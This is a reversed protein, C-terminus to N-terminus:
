ENLNRRDYKHVQKALRALEKIMFESDQARPQDTQIQRFQKQIANLQELIQQNHQRLKSLKEEGSSVETQHDNEAEFRLVIVIESLNDFASKLAELAASRYRQYTLEQSNLKEDLTEILGRFAELLADLQDLDEDAVASDLRFRLHHYDHWCSKPLWESEIPTPTKAELADLVEDRRWRWELQSLPFLRLGSRELVEYRRVRLAAGQRGSYGILDIAIFEDNRAALVDLSVGALPYDVYTEFGRQGLAQCLALRGLNVDVSEQQEIQHNLEQIHKLYDALLSKVPLESASVSSFVLQQMRSRTIAVNFLDARNLYQHVGGPEDKSVACSLLIVDSEDGQFGYPSDVRMQHRRIQTLSFKDTLLQELYNVQDRFFSIVGFSTAAADPLHAEENILRSLYEILTQAEVTNIGKSRKGDCEILRLCRVTTSRPREALIKLRGQYFRQNSFSILETQSRFHEDLSTLAMQSTINQEAIDLLSQDRYSINLGLNLQEAILREQARSLFSIHRLQKHDGVVVVRKGRYAAPISEALHCQTAEDIAVLDFMGPSMPLVQHLKNLPVLWIPLAKLVIDIDISSFLDAQLGSSHTNLAERFSVITKRHTSLLQSLKTRYIQGIRHSLQRDSQHSAKILADYDELLLPRNMTARKHRWTHFRQLWRPGTRKRLQSSANISTQMRLSLDIRRQKLVRNLKSLSQKSDPEQSAVSRMLRNIAGRLQRMGGKAGAHIIADSSMGFKEILQDRIVDLAAENHTVLLLSQGEVFQKLAVASLLHTKGTGPAGMVVSLAHQRSVKLASSQDPTLIGPFGEDEESYATPSQNANIGLLEGLGDPIHKRRSLKQLEYSIGAVAKSRETILVAASPCLIPHDDANTQLRKIQKPDSCPLEETVAQTDFGFSELRQRIDKWYAKSFPELNKLDELDTTKLGYQHLVTWNFEAQNLDIVIVNANLRAPYLILPAALPRVRTRAFVKSEYQGLLLYASFVLRYERPHLSLSKAFRDAARHEISLRLEGATSDVDINQFFGLHKVKDSFIDWLGADKNDQEFCRRYFEVQTSHPYLRDSGSEM